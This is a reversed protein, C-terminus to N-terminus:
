SKGCRVFTPKKQFYIPKEPSFHTKKFITLAPLNATSYTDFSILEYFPRKEWKVQPTKQM